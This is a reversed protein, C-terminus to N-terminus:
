RDVDEAIVKIAYNGNRVGPLGRLKVRDNIKVDLRTGVHKDLLLVDGPEARLLHEVTVDATGLLATLQVRTRSLSERLGAETEEETAAVVAQSEDSEPPLSRVAEFPVCLAVRGSGVGSQILLCIQLFDEDPAFLDLAQLDLMFPGVEVQFMGLRVWLQPLPSLLHSVLHALVHVDVETFEILAPAEASAEGGMMRELAACAFQKDLTVVGHRGHPAMNFVFGAVADGMEELMNEWKMQEISVLQTKVSTRLVRAAHSNANQVLPENLTKLKELQSRNFRSPQRFDYKQVRRGSEPRSEFSTPEEDRTAQLLAEMEGKTLKGEQTPSM